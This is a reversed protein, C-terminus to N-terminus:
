VEKMKSKIDKAPQQEFREQATQANKVNDVDFGMRPEFGYNAFFPTMRTSISLNGNEAFEALPLWMKWDTQLYNVYIRLYQEIEKNAIESQEDTQSHYATSLKKKVQLM